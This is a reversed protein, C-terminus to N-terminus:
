RVKVSKSFGQGPEQAGPSLMRRVQHGFLLAMMVFLVLFLFFLGQAIATAAGAIGGFGMVDTAISVILFFLAWHLM